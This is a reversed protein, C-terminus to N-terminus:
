RSTPVPAYGVAKLWEEPYGITQGVAPTNLYGDNYKVILSEAFKWYEEVVDNANQVTYNTIFTRALEPDQEYMKVAAAEVATQMRYERGEIEAQKAKIDEIMYSYKLNAFNEVFDYVWWAATSDFQTTNGKAYSEPSETAGCYIPVYVTAHPTDAGFWLVGGIMDPLWSRSQSTWTYAARFISIAREWSGMAGSTAWRDPTGFPGAALGKTLDFETGEYHDRQIQNLTDLSVKQDPKVSFPYRNAYPDLNLSPALLSLVRWERRWNYPSDKPGYAEYYVFPTSPDWWGMEEALTYVNSSAMFYDPNSLDIEGIRARNASVGCHDDPIRQAAWVAGPADDGQTWLIGPGFIEFQWVENADAVTLCEGSDCYGYEEALEGMIQIAERATAARELAVQSLSVINFWADANRLERRGGTTTEGLAVQHENMIGYSGEFYAYTHSVQPIEGRLDPLSYRSDGISRFGHGSYVERMTGESYDAAPRYYLIPDCYGCDDTHSTMVSGDVSALRGTPISTCATVSASLVAVALASVLFAGSLKRRM